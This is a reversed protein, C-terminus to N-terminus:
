WMRRKLQQGQAQFKAASDQLDETRGQITELNEGRAM